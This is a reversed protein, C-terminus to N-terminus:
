PRPKGWRNASPWWLKWTTWPAPLAIVHLEPSVPLSLNAQEAAALPPFTKRLRRPGTYHFQLPLPLRHLHLTTTITHRDQPASPPRWDVCPGGGFARRRKLTEQSEVSGCVVRWAIEQSLNEQRDLFKPRPPTLKAASCGLHRPMVSHRQRRTCHM